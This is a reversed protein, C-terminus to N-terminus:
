ARGARQGRRWANYEADSMTMVDVAANLSANKPVGGPANPAERKPAPTRLNAQQKPTLADMLRYAEEYRNSRADIASVLHPNQTLFKQLDAEVKEYKEPNQKIWLREEIDRVAAKQVSKLDAKTASEYQTNDEEQASQSASQKQEREYQLKWEAEQARKRYKKLVSLPVQQEVKEQQQEESAEQDIPQQDQVQEIENSEVDDENDM